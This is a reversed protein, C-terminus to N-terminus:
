HAACKKLFKSAKRFGQEFRSVSEEPSRGRSVTARTQVTTIGSVIMDIWVEYKGPNGPYDSVYLFYPNNPAITINKEALVKEIVQQAAERNVIDFGTYFEYHLECQAFAPSALLLGLALTFLSAKM